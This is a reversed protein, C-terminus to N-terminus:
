RGVSVHPSMGLAAGMMRDRQTKDDFTMECPASVTVSGNEHVTSPVFSCEHSNNDTNFAMDDMSTSSIVAWTKEEKANKWKGTRKRGSANASHYTAHTHSPVIMPATVIQVARYRASTTEGVDDSQAGGTLTAGTSVKNTASLDASTAVAQPSRYPAFRGDSDPTSRRLHAEFLRTLKVLDELAQQLITVNNDM